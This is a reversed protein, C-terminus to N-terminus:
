ILIAFNILYIKLLLCLEDTDEGEGIWLKGDWPLWWTGEERARGEKVRKTEKM